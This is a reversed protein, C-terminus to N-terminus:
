PQADRWAPLDVEFFGLRGPMPEIETFADPDRLVFGYDGFFWFGGEEKDIVVDVLEVSGVLGGTEFHDPLTTLWAISKVWELGESDIKQPAHVFFRGRFDTSWTRNEIDKYGNVILWAWPQRISLAKM